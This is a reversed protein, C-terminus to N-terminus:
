VSLLQASPNYAQYNLVHSVNGYTKLGVHHYKSQTPIKSQEDSQQM